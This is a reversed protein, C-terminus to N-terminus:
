GSSQCRHLTSSFPTTKQNSGRRSFSNSQEVLLSSTSPKSFNHHSTITPSHGLLSLFQRASVTMKQSFQCVSQIINLVRDQPVRVINLHTLFEMGIFVFTQSPILDSKEKNIILGLSSILQIIFHRHELLTLQNQNKSLWDDLYPFLSIARMKLFMAIERMLATFVFPSTSLGFPLARWQFIRDGVTFRLYRRSKKHVLVHLYADTLDLSIAWDHKQIANRVKRQTKMKFSQTFIHKNLTSLDIILRLKGNKKPVLFVRSYFGPSEPYIEEVARKQLLNNIEEELQLNQTQQFFIPIESLPPHDVFPIKYGRKVISLVWQNNTVTQWVTAFHALRGGVPIQPQPFPLPPLNEFNRLLPPEEVLPSAM